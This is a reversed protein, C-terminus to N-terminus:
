KLTSLKHKKSTARNGNIDIAVIVPIVVRYEMTRNISCLTDAYVSAVVEGVAVVTVFATNLGVTASRCIISDVSFLFLDM